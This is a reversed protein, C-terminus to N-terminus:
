ASYLWPSLSVRVPREVLPTVTDSRLQLSSALMVLQAAIVPVVIVTSMQAMDNRPCIAKVISPVASVALPLVGDWALFWRRWEVDNSRM